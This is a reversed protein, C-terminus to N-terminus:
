AKFWLGVMNKRLEGWNELKGTNTGTYRHTQPVRGLIEEHPIFFQDSVGVEWM